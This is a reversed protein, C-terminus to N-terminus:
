DDSSGSLPFIMKFRTGQNVESTVELEGKLKKTLLTHVISMGLGTGGESRKTTFFPDFMKKLTADDMGLGNDQYVVELQNNSLEDIDIQIKADGCFGTGFGHICSNNVLNTLVQAVAGPYTTVERDDGTIDISVSAKKTIPVLTSLVRQVYDHLQITDKEFHNQDASTRKFNTILTAAKNLNAEVLELSEYANDIFQRLATKTMASAQFDQDLKKLDVALHSSATLAVGLPTNVEHAVGSVMSGLAAMKESEVLKGQLAKLEDITQHLHRTRAEVMAELNRNTKELQEEYDLKERASIARGFLDSLVGAFVVEDDNWTRAPGRHESCIIGVTSGSHRIPTDLMSSIGLVDLYGAAFERTEQAALADNAVIVRDEDLASFYNPFDQRHLVLEESAVEMTADTLLYCRIGSLNEDFLWIGARNVQLGELVSDLILESAAKLDGQDIVPSKSVQNLLTELRKQM